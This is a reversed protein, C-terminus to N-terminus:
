LQSWRGPNILDESDSGIDPPSGITSAASARVIQALQEVSEAGVVVRDIESFSLPFALSADLAAVSRQELSRHWESWLEDWRAFKRPLTERSM